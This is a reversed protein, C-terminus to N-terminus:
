PKLNVSGDSGLGFGHTDLATIGEFRNLLHPLSTAGSAAIQASTIVTANGPFETINLISAPARSGSVLVEPLRSRAQGPAQESRQSSASATAGAFLVPLVLWVHRAGM